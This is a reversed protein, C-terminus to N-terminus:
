QDLATVGIVLDADRRLLMAVAAVLQVHQDGKVLARDIFVEVLHLAAAGDKVVCAGKLGLKGAVDVDDRDAHRHLLDRLIVAADDHGVHGGHTRARRQDAEIGVDEVREDALTVALM